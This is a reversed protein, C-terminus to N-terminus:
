GLIGKLEQESARKLEAMIDDYSAGKNLNVTLDVVAALCCTPVALQLHSDSPAAMIDDFSACKNLNASLDVVALHHACPLLLICCDVSHVAPLVASPMHM